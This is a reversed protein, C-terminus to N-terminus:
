KGYGGSGIENTDSFNNTCKKLEDYSFWRAGKLIPAGGSDKGSPAWSAFPKNLEIAQEARKKQRIAYIAMAALALLLICSGIAIGVIAAIGLKTGETGQFVPVDAIFYYPGFGAPPKFTQNTLYFGFKQIDLRSFYKGSSPILAMYVQLYDDSNFHPNELYVSGPNLGLKVWLDNELKGFVSANTVDRFSPARFFLNGAYPFACECTAPSARQGNPCTGCKALSTSYPKKTVQQLQCFNTTSLGGNCVPNGVLILANNYGSGLEVSAIKNNQLDVLQLQPSIGTGMKLTGNLLNGKLKVQQLEPFSFLEAPLSGQLNGNEMVLTTLSDITSFWKPPESLDFDNNSLDVYNLSSMGTLDPVAGKLDNNALHLESLKALSNIKSPVPGTLKNRDLRLVELNQVLTISEPINGTIQNGDLLIHILVMSSNFLQESIPGTLQNKNFHFHKAKLLLDLGPQSDTSVPLSGRIQNDSLDLWYLETLKGLSPPINGSFNNSNLALFTLQALDGIEDPITGSFSCGALILLNLKKLSGIQTTLSGTLGDNFSLDLSRLESLGGIDGSLSGKLNMSSLGLSTVRSGSCGVGDWQSGCPDDSNWNPPSNEWNDKLSRLVAADGGDTVSIVLLAQTSCFLLFILLQIAAAM